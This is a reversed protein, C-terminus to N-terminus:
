ENTALIYTKYHDANVFGDETEFGWEQRKPGVFVLTWTPVRLLIRVSHWDELGVRHVSGWRRIRDGSSTEEIYGGRLVIAVFARPHNHLHRDNDPRHWKHIQAGFWPTRFLVIRTVMTDRTFLDPIRVIKPPVWPNGSTHVVDSPDPNM